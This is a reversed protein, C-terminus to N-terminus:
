RGYEIGVLLYVDTNLGFGASVSRSINEANKYLWVLRCM